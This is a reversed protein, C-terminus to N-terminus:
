LFDIGSVIFSSSFTIAGSVIEMQENSLENM